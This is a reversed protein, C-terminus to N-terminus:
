SASLDQGLMVPAAIEPSEHLSRAPEPEATNSVAEDPLAGLQSDTLSNPLDEVATKVEADAVRLSPTLVLRAAPKKVATAMGPVSSELGEEGGLRSIWSRLVLRDCKPVPDLCM